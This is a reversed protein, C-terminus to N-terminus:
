SEIFLYKPYTFLFLKRKLLFIQTRMGKSDEIVERGNETYAFDASYTIPQHKKGSSDIFKDQLIFKPQLTLNTIKGAKELLKLEKYRACEKMSDFVIGDYFM